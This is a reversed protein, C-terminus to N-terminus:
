RARRAHANHVACSFRYLAGDKYGRQRLIRRCRGIALAVNRTSGAGAAYEILGTTGMDSLTM